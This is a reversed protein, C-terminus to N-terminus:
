DIIDLLDYLGKIEYTIELNEPRAEHNPNNWCTDIGYDARGQMDSTLSDGIILVDSKPPNGGRM